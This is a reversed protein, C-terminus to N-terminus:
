SVSVKVRLEITSDQPTPGWPLYYSGGGIFSARFRWRKLADEVARNVSSDAAPQTISIESSGDRGVHVRAVATWEAKQQQLADPLTPPPADIPIAPM